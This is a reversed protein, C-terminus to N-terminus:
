GRCISLIMTIIIDFIRLSNNYLDESKEHKREFHQFNFIFEAPKNSSFKLKSHIAAFLCKLLFSKRKMQIQQLFGADDDDNTAAEFALSTAQMPQKDAFM